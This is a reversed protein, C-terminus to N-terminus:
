VTTVPGIFRGELTDGAVSGDVADDEYGDGERFCSPLNIIVLLPIYFACLWGVKLADDTGFIIYLIYSIILLNSLIQVRSIRSGIRRFYWPANTLSFIAAIDLVWNGRATYLGTNSPFAIAMVSLALAAMNCTMKLSDYTSSRSADRQHLRRSRAPTGYFDFMRSRTGEEPQTTVVIATREKTKALITIHSKARSFAKATSRLDSVAKGNVSIIQDGLNLLSDTVLGDPHIATILPGNQASRLRPRRHLAEEALDLGVKSKPHPKVVYCEVLSGDGHANQVTVTVHEKTNKILKVAGPLKMGYCSKNNISILTDGDLVPSQSLLGEQKVESIVLTNSDSVRIKFGLDDNPKKRIVRASIFMATRVQRADHDEDDAALDLFTLNSAQRVLTAHVDINIIRSRIASSARELTTAPAVEAESSDILEEERSLALVPVHDYDSGSFRRSSGGLPEAKVPELMAAITGRSPAEEVSFTSPASAPLEEVTASIADSVAVEDFSGSFEDSAHREDVSAVSADITPVEDVEATFAPSSEIEGSLTSAEVDGVIAGNDIAEEEEATEQASPNM